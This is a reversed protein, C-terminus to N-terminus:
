VSAQTSVCPFVGGVCVCRVSSPSFPPHLYQCRLGLELAWKELEATEAAAELEAGLVVSEMWDLPLGRSAANSALLVQWHEVGPPVKWQFWVEQQSAREGLLIWNAPNLEFREPAGLCRQGRYTCSVPGRRGHEALSARAERAGQIAAAHLKARFGPADRQMNGSSDGALRHQLM